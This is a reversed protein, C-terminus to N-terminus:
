PLTQFVRCVQTSYRTIQPRLLYQGSSAWRWLWFCRTAISNYLKEKRSRVRAVDIMVTSWFWSHWAAMFQQQNDQQNAVWLQAFEFLRRATTDMKFYVTWYRFCTTGSAVKLKLFTGQRGQFVPQSKPVALQDALCMLDVSNSRSLPAAVAASRLQIGWLM